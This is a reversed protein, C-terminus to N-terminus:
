QQPEKEAPNKELGRWKPRALKCDLDDEVAETAQKRGGHLTLQDFKSRLKEMSLINGCWFDDNQSWKLVNEIDQETRGDLRMMRDAVVAWHQIQTPKIKASPNNRLILCQLLQALRLGAESGAPSSTEVSAREDEPSINKNSSSSSSSSCAEPMATPMQDTSEPYSQPLSQISKGHHRHIARARQQASFEKQRQLTRCLGDQEWWQHDESLKWPGALLQGKIRQWDEESPNRLRTRIAREDVPIRHGQPSAAAACMLLIHAGVADLDMAMVHDDAAFQRPYFQFAPPRNSM